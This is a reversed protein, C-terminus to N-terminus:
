EFREYGWRKVFDEDLYEGLALVEPEFRARLRQMLAEDVEEPPAYLRENVGQVLGRRLKAPMVAKLAGKVALSGPGHGVSVAHMLGHARRSRPRVTPNARSPPIRLTDDVGLFRQVRRVTGENDALFDEYVLVLVRERGFAEHYRRLQAAYRVHESYLLAQPWYTHRPIQRGRRREEELALAREFDPETEIYSEVFQMHLSRLFSAPERLIAIIRAEPQVAAIADAATRSWLYLASAEGVRQEPRAGAFWARYEELTRPTGEPRPPTRELLEAAFYWPEKSDPLFIAPHARLMEYMATTGSKAHGVIFFDPIRGAISSAAASAV